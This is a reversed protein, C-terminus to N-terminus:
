FNNDDWKCATVIAQEWSESLEVEQAEAELLDNLWVWVEQADYRPNISVLVRGQPPRFLGGNSSVSSVCHLHQVFQLVPSEAALWFCWVGRDQFLETMHFAKPKPPLPHNQYFTGGAMKRAGTKFVVPQKNVLNSANPRAALGQFM